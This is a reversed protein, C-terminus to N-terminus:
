ASAERRVPGPRCHGARHRCRRRRGPVFFILSLVIRRFESRDDELLNVDLPDLALIKGCEISTLDCLSKALDSYECLCCSAKAFAESFYNAILYDSASCELPTRTSQGEYARLTKAVIFGVEFYNLLELLKKSEHLLAVM